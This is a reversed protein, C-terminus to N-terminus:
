SRRRSFDNTWRHPEPEYTTIVSLRKEALHAVVVVHLPGRSGRGNLLLRRFPLDDDYHEIIQGRELVQEVDENTIQKEFMRRTAHVRYEVEYGALDQELLDSLTGM